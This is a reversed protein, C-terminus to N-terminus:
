VDWEEFEFSVRLTTAPTGAAVYIGTGPRLMPPRKFVIEQDTNAATNGVVLQQVGTLAAGTNDSRLIAAGDSGRVRDLNFPQAAPVTALQNTNTSIGYTDAASAGLRVSYVLVNKTSTPPNFLQLIITGAAGTGTIVGRYCRGALVKAKEGDVVTVVGTQTDVFGAAGIFVTVDQANAQKNLLTVDRFSAPANPDALRALSLDFGQGENLRIEAGGDLKVGVPGAPASLIKFYTGGADIRASANVAAALSVKYDRMTM